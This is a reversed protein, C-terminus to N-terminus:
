LTGELGKQTAREASLVLIKNQFNTYHMIHFLCLFFLHHIAGILPRHGLLAKHRAVGWHGVMHLQHGKSNKQGQRESLRLGGSTASTNRSSKNTETTITVPYLCDKSPYMISPAYQLGSAPIIMVYGRETRLWPNLFVFPHHPYKKFMTKCFDQHYCQCYM